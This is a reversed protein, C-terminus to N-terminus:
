NSCSGDVLGFRVSVVGPNGSEGGCVGPDCYNLEGESISKVSSCDVHKRVIVQLYTTTSAASIYDPPTLDYVLGPDIANPPNVHGAGMAFFDAPLHREDLIPGRSNDTVYATTM